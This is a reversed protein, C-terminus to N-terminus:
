QTALGFLGLLDENTLSAGETPDISVDEVLEDFLRQKGRLIHGIREEITREGTYTYVNVARAQGIRHSRAEAQREVAPNWWRDFHFVYSAAQLNLGQGGAGLSLILVPADPDERFRALVRERENQGMDGTYVLADPGLRAAIARAGYAANTFQTFVLAKHGEAALVGIRERLDTLKSSEGSRPCVNCIQRLRLVLNFVHEITIQQGLDRLEMIGEREARDYTERQRPALPLVIESVLKEPLDDLVEAKRRRLQFRSLHARLGAYAVFHHLDSGAAPDLFDLISRLDDPSNELPTGTLAWQRARKLQKCVRSVESDANKIKQAEDLIVLDWRRNAPTNTVSASDSRLTEYSTLYVHAPARWQWARASPEGHVTSVRLEGAWRRLETRWQGLLGAPVVVLASEITGQIAMIRIAAISQLTKGLGMDDALLLADRSLLARIGDLQYPRFPRPWALPGRQTLLLETSPGLVAALRRVLPVGDEEVWPLGRRGAGGGSETLKREWPTPEPPALGLRGMLSVSGRLSEEETLAIEALRLPTEARPAVEAIAAGREPARWAASQTRATAVTLPPILLRHPPPIPLPAPRGPLGLRRKSETAETETVTFWPERDSM